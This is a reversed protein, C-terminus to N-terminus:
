STYASAGFFGINSLAPQVAQKIAGVQEAPTGPPVNINLTNTNGVKRADDVKSSSLNFKGIELKLRSELDGGFFGNFDPLINKFSSLKEILLDWKVIIWDISETAADKIEDWYYVIAVLAAGVLVAGAILTSVAVMSAGTVASIGSALLMASAYAIKIAGSLIGFSFTLLKFAGTVYGIIVAGLYMFNETIFSVIKPYEKLKDALAGWIKGFENPKDNMWDSWDNLVLLIAGIAVVIAMYPSAVFSLGAAILKFLAPLLLASITVAILKLANDAGDAADMFKYFKKEVLGIADVIKIAITNIIHTKDNINQIAVSFKNSVMTMAQAITMPMKKFQENFYEAMKKTSEIIDKATIKGESGLKKLQERPVGMAISLQELYQPAAEALSRFEDGQLVGSGIAQSLQLMASSAEQASAGGVILAKSITDTIGLLENQDKVLGKAANGVRTYLAGYASLSMRAGDARKAVENLADNASGITQPLMGIRAQLSQMDDGVTVLKRLSLAGVVASLAPVVAGMRRTSREIGESAKNMGAGIKIGASSASNATSALNTKVKEISAEFRALKANDIKLGIAVTLERLTTM